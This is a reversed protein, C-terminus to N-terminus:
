FEHSQLYIDDDNRHVGRNTRQLLCGVRNGDNQSIRDIRNAVAEDGAERTGTAIGSSQCTGGIVGSWLL